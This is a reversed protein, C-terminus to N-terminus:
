VLLIPVDESTHNVTAEVSIAPRTAAQSINPDPARVDLTDFAALTTTVHAAHELFWADAIYLELAEQLTPPTNLFGYTRLIIYLELAPM